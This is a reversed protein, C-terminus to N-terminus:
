AATGRWGAEPLAMTDFFARYHVAGAHEFMGISVIRDFRRNM